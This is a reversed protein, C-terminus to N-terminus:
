KNALLGRRELQQELWDFEAVLGQTLADQPNTEPTLMQLWTYTEIELYPTLEAHQQLFDLTTLIADQTTTIVHEGKDTQQNVLALQRLHIPVHYHVHCRLPAVEDLVGDSAQHLQLYNKLSEASLDDIAICGLSDSSLKCQHLFKSDNLYDCLIDIDDPHNLDTAIANSIQIKCIHIGNDVISQLSESVNEFMVGQHCTDYCCGIYTLVDSRTLGRQEAQPLLSQNFFQLLQETSELVCDPEMELGFVIRKGSSQELEALYLALDLLQNAAKITSSSQWGEAYGLPLTSIAGYPITKGDKDIVTHAHEIPLLQTLITALQQSYQLREPEAWTPLYVNQKVVKQHFDGFPFGNLSTLAIQHQNLCNAFEALSQPTALLQQSAKNSLWLGSAMELQGRSKQVPHLGTALNKIVAEASEGPHVNSCYALQKTQWRPLGNKIM